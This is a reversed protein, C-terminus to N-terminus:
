DSWDTRRSMMEVERAIDQRRSAYEVPGCQTSDDAVLMLRWLRLSPDYVVDVSTADPGDGYRQPIAQSLEYHMRTSHAGARVTDLLVM